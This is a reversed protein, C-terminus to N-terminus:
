SVPVAVLTRPNPPHEGPLLCLPPLSHIGRLIGTFVIPRVTRLSVDDHCLLVVYTLVSSVRGICLLVTPCIQQSLRRFQYGYVVVVRQM